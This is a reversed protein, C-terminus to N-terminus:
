TLARATGAVGIPNITLCSLEEVKTPSAFMTSLSRPLFQSIRDTLTTLVISFIRWVGMDLAIGALGSAGKSASEGVAGRARPRTAVRLLVFVASGFRVFCAAYTSETGPASFAGNGSFSEGWSAVSTLLM